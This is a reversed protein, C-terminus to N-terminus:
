KDDPKWPGDKPYLPSHFNGKDAYVRKGPPPNYGGTPYSFADFQVASKTMKKQMETPNHEKGMFHAFHGYPTAQIKGDSWQSTNLMERHKARGPRSGKKSNGSALAAERQHKLLSKRVPDKALVGTKAKLSHPKAPESDGEFVTDLFVGGATNNAADLFKQFDERRQKALAKRDVQEMSQNVSHQVTEFVDTEWDVYLQEKKTVEAAETVTLFQDISDTMEKGDDLTKVMGEFAADRRQQAKIQARKLQEATQQRQREQMRQFEEERIERRAEEATKPKPQAPTRSRSEDPADAILQAFIKMNYVRVGDEKRGGAGAGAGAGGTHSGATQRGSGRHM